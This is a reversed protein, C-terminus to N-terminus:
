AEGVTQIYAWRLWDEAHNGSQCVMPFSQRELHRWDSLDRGTHNIWYARLERYHIRAIDEWFFLWTSRSARHKRLQTILEATTLQRTM